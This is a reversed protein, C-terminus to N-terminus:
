EQQPNFYAYSWREQEIYTVVARLCGATNVKLGYVACRCCLRRIRAAPTESYLARAGCM